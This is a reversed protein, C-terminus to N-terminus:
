VFAPSIVPTHHYFKDIDSKAFDLAVSSFLSARRMREGSTSSAIAATGRSRNTGGSKCRLDYSSTASGMPSPCVIDCGVITASIVAARCM